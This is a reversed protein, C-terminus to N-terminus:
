QDGPAWSDSAWNYVCGVPMYRYDACEGDSVVLELEHEGAEVCKYSTKASTADAFTGSSSIWYYSLARTADDSEAGSSVKIEAGLGVVLPSAAFTTIQPCVSAPTKLSTAGFSDDGTQDPASCALSLACAGVLATGRRSSRQM